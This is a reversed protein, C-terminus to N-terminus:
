EGPMGWPKANSIKAYEWDKHKQCVALFISGDRYGEPTKTNEEHVACGVVEESCNPYGCRTALDAVEQCIDGAAESFPDCLVQREYYMTYDSM